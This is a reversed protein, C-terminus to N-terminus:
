SNPKARKLAALADFPSGKSELSDSQERRAEVDSEHSRPVMPLDLIVEDEVLATLDLERGAVIFDEDEPEEEVPPLRDENEVLILRRDIALDHRLLQLTTQCQLTVWGSIICRLRRVESGHENVLSGEIRYHLEGEPAAVVEHLRPLSGPEITGTVNQGLRTFSDTAVIGLSQTGGQDSKIM